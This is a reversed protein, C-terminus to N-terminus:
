IGVGNVAAQVAKEMEAVVTGRNAELAPRLFPRCAQSVWTSQNPYNLPHRFSGGGGMGEYPRAHPAISGRAEVIVGSGRGFRVIVNLSRPIRTSWSANGAATAKVADGADKLAPRLTKRLERPVDGLKAALRNAGAAGEYGTV